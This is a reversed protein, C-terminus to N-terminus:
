CDFTTIPTPPPQWAPPNALFSGHLAKREAEARPDLRPTIDLSKIVRVRSPFSTRYVQPRRVEGMTKHLDVLQQEGLEYPPHSLLESIVGHLRRFAKTSVLREADAVAELYVLEDTEGFAEALDKEDHTRPNSLPWAPIETHDASPGALVAIGTARRDGRYFTTCGAREEPNAVAYEPSPLPPASVKYPRLGELLAAAMHGSEHSILSEHTM